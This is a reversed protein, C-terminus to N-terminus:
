QEVVVVVVVVIVIRIIIRIVVLMLVILNPADPGGAVHRVAGLARVGRPRGAQEPEGPGVEPGERAAPLHPAEPEALGAGGWCKRLHLSHNLLCAKNHM